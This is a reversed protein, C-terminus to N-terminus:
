EIKDQDYQFSVNFAKEIAESTAYLIGEKAKVPKKTYSYEYNDNSNTLDLKYIKNSGLSFNAVENENQIYCKDQM